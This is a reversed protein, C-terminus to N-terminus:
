FAEKHRMTNGTVILSRELEVFIAKIKMPQQVLGLILTAESPQQL